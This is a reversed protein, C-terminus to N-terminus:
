KRALGTKLDIKSVPENPLYFRVGGECFVTCIFPGFSVMRDKDNQSQSHNRERVPSRKFVKRDSTESM